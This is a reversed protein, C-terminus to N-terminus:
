PIYKICWISLNSPCGCMAKQGSGIPTSCSGSNTPTLGSQCEAQTGTVNTNFACEGSPNTRPSNSPGGNVCWLGGKSICPDEPPRNCEPNWDCRMKTCTPGVSNHQACNYNPQSPITSSWRCCNGSIGLNGGPNQGGGVNKTGGRSSTIGSSSSGAAYDQAHAFVQLNLCFLCLIIIKEICM